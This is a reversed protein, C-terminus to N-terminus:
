QLWHLYRCFKEVAADRRLVKSMHRFPDKKNGARYIQKAETKHLHEPLETSYGDLTGRSRIADSNHNAKHMKPFDFGHCSPLDRFVAKLSHFEQWSANLLSLTGNSHQPYQSLYIFDILARAARQVASPVLGAIAACFTKEMNRYETGTWQEVKSIGHPFALLGHHASLSKYREDLRQVDLVDMTWKVLHDKFLGKHLEHLLDPTMAEFIDSVHLESWFPHAIPLLGLLKM